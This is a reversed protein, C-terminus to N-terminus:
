LRGNTSWVGLLSTINEHSGLLFLITLEKRVSDHAKHKHITALHMIKVACERESPMALHGDPKIKGRVVTAFAGSGLCEQKHMECESALNCGNASTQIASVWIRMARTTEALLRKRKGNTFVVEFPYLEGDKPTGDLIRAHKVRKGCCRFHKRTESMRASNAYTLQGNSLIVWRKAHGGRFARQKFLYGQLIPWAIRSRRERSM